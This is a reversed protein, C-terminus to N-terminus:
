SWIMCCTQRGGEAGKHADAGGGSFGVARVPNLAALARGNAQRCSRDVQAM